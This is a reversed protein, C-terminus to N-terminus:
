LHKVNKKELPTSKNETQASIRGHCGKITRLSYKFVFVWLSWLNRAASCVQLIKRCCDFRSVVALGLVSVSGRRQRPMAAFDILFYWYNREWGPSGSSVDLPSCGSGVQESVMLNVTPQVPFHPMQLPFLNLMLWKFRANCLIRTIWNDSAKRLMLGTAYLM